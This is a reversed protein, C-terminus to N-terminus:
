LVKKNILTNEILHKINEEVTFGFLIHTLIKCICVCAPLMSTKQQITTTEPESTGIETTEVTTEPKITNEIM